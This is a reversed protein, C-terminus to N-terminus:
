EGHAQARASHGGDVPVQGLDVVLSGPAAGECRRRREEHEEDRDGYEQGQAAIEVRPQDREHHQQRREDGGVATAGQRQDQPEHARQREVEEERLRVVREPDLRRRADGSEDDVRQDCDHKRVVDAAEARGARSRLPPRPAHLEELRQRDVQDAAVVQCRRQAARQGIEALAEAQTFGGQSDRHAVPVQGLADAGLARRACQERLDRM